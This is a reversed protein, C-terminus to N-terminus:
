EVMKPINFLLKNDKAFIQLIKALDLSNLILLKIKYDVFKAINIQKM